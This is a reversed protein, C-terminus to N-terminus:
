QAAECDDYRGRGQAAAHDAQDTGLGALRQGSRDQILAIGIEDAAAHGGVQQNEVSQDRLVGLIGGQQGRARLQERQVPRPERRGLAGDRQGVLRAAVALLRQTEDM